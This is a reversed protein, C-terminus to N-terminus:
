LTIEWIPPDEDDGKAVTKIYLHGNRGWFATVHEDIQLSDVHFREYGSEDTYIECPYFNGEINVKM